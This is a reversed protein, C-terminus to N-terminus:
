RTPLVTLSYCHHSHAHVQTLAHARMHSHAYALTHVRTHIHTHPERRLHITVPTVSQSIRSHCVYMSCITTGLPIDSPSLLVVGSNGMVTETVRSLHRKIVNNGYVFSQEGAPSLWIKNTCHRALLDIATIQLRFKKSKTFKGLIVGVSMLQKRPVCEAVKVLKRKVYYVRDQHLRFVNAHDSTDNAASVISMLNQGVFKTLKDFVKKTEDETLERM